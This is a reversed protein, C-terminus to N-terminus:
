THITPKRHATTIAAIMENKSDFLRKVDPNKLLQKVEDDSLNNLYSSLFGLGMSVMALEREELELVIKM